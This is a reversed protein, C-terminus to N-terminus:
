RDGGPLPTQSSPTPSLPLGSRKDEEPSPTHPQALDVETADSTYHQAGRPRQYREVAEPRGYELDVDTKDFYHPPMEVPERLSSCAGCWLVM